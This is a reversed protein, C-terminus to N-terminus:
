KLEAIEGYAAKLESKLQDNKGKISSNANHLDQPQDTNSLLQIQESMEYEKLRLRIATNERIQEELKRQSEEYMRLVTQM